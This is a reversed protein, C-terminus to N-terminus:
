FLVLGRGKGSERLNKDEQFLSKQREPGRGTPAALPEHLRPRGAGRLKCLFSGLPGAPLREGRTGTRHPRARHGPTRERGPSHPEVTAPILPNDGPKLNSQSQFSLIFQSTSRRTNHLQSATSRANSLSVSSIESDSILLTKQCNREAPRGM